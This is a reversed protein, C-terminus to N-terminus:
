TRFINNLTKENIGASVRPLQSNWIIMPIGLSSIYNVAYKYISLFESNSEPLILVVTNIRTDLECLANLVGEPTFNIKGLNTLRFGVKGALNDPLESEKLVCSVATKDLELHGYRNDLIVVGLQYDQPHAKHACLLLMLVLHAWAM